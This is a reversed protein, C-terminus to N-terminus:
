LGKIESPACHRVIEREKGVKGTGTQRVGQATDGSRVHLGRAMCWRESLQEGAAGMAAAELKMGYYIM